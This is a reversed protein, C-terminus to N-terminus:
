ALAELGFEVARYVRGGYHNILNRADCWSLMGEYSTKSAMMHGTVPERTRLCRIIRDCSRRYSIKVRKRIRAHSRRMVYGLFDIGRSEVPFIQWNHKVELGERALRVRIAALYHHLLSKGRWLIVLDDMYRYYYSAGMREKIYHDFDSLYFSSFIQSSYLGIPLGKKGPCEYIMVHLIGLTRRCKLKRKLKAFLIDRDINDFYRRVDMKLCYQTGEPDAELDRRVEVSAHHIGKGERAAYTDATCTGLLIPAVVQMVAHQVIRDPFTRTYCLERWKGREYIKKHRFKSYHFAEDELIRAVADIYPEPDEKMRQVAPDKRHDRCAAKVAKAINDRDKILDYLKKGGIQGIRKM